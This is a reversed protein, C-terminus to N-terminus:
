LLRNVQRYLCRNHLSKAKLEKVTTGTYKRDVPDKLFLPDKECKNGRKNFHRTCMQLPLSLSAKAEWAWHSAHRTHTPRSLHQWRCPILLPLTHWSRQSCWVVVPFPVWNDRCSHPTWGRLSGRSLTQNWLWKNEVQAGTDKCYQMPSISISLPGKEPKSWHWNYPVQPMFLGASDAYYKLIFRILVLWHMSCDFVM